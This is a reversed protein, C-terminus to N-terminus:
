YRGRLHRARVEMQLAADMESLSVKRRRPTLCGAVGDLPTMPRLLLGHPEQVVVLVTSAAWRRRRLIEGPLKVRGSRSLRTTVFKNPM